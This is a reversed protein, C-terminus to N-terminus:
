NYRFYSFFCFILNKKKVSYYKETTHRYIDHWGKNELISCHFFDKCKQQDTRKKKLWKCNKCFFHFRMWFWHNWRFNSLGSCFFIIWFDLWWLFFWFFRKRSVNCFCVIWYSSFVYPVARTFVDRFLFFWRMFFASFFCFFAVLFVWVNFIFNSVEGWFIFGDAWVGRFYVSLFICYFDLIM